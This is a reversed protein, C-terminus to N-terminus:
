IPFCQLGEPAIGTPLFVTLNLNKMAAVSILQFFLEFGMRIPFPVLKLYALANARARKERQDDLLCLLKSFTHFLWKLCIM